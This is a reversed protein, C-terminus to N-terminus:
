YVEIDEELELLEIFRKLKESGIADFRNNIKSAWMVTMTRPIVQGKLITFPPSLKALQEITLSVQMGTKASRFLYM